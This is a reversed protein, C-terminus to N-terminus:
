KLFRLKYIITSIFEIVEDTIQQIYPKQEERFSYSDEIVGELYSIIDMNENLIPSKYGTIINESQSSEVLRDRYEVIGEYLENLAKHEAFSKTQWHAVHANIEVEFLVKIYEQIKM